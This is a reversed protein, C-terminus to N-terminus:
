RNLWSVESRCPHCYALYYGRSYDIKFETLPKFNKCYPCRKRGSKNVRTRSSVFKDFCPKCLAKPWANDPAFLTRRDGCSTCRRAM